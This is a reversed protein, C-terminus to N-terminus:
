GRRLARGPRAGTHEGQEVVPVGNVLVLPMGSAYQHPNDFTAEDKVAVADFAVLDAKLGRAIRGRDRLGVQDAPMSTMKKVAEALGFLKRERVYHALVRAFTGYSRPHPRSAAARGVPAMSSGDSGIM